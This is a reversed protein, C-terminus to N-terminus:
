VILEDEDPIKLLLIDLNNKKLIYKIYRIGGKTPFYYAKIRKNRKYYSVYERVDDPLDNLRVKKINGNKRLRNLSKFVNQMQMDADDSLESCSIGTDWNLAVLLMIYQTTGLSSVDFEIFGLYKDYITVAKEEKM